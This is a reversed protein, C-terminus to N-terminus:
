PKVSKSEEGSHRSASKQGYTPLGLRGSIMHATFLVVIVELLYLEVAIEQEIDDILNKPMMNVCKVTLQESTVTPDVGLFEFLDLLEESHLGGSHLM